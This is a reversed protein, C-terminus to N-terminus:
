DTRDFRRKIGKVFSPPRSKRLQANIWKLIENFRFEDGAIGTYYGMQPRLVASEWLGRDRVGQGGCYEGNQQEHIDLVEAM